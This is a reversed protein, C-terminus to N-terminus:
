RSILSPHTEMMEVKFSSTDHCLSCTFTSSRQPFLLIFSSIWMMASPLVTASSSNNFKRMILIFVRLWSSTTKSVTFWKPDSHISFELFIKNSSQGCVVWRKTACLLCWFSVFLALHQKFTSLSAQSLMGRKTDWWKSSSGGTVKLLRSTERKSPFISRKPLSIDVMFCTRHLCVYILLEM